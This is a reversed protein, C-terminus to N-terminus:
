DPTEQNQTDQGPTVFLMATPAHPRATHWIGKPVIVYSGPEDVRITKDDERTRLVFDTDGWLLYVFEDGHPHVEWTPWPEDFDFRSILLHGAFTGFEGLEEFFQPTITKATAKGTPSIIIRTDEFNYPGPDIPM